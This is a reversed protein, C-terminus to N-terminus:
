GSVSAPVELVYLPLEGTAVQTLRVDGAMAEPRRDVTVEPAMLTTLPLAAGQLAAGEGDIGLPSTALVLLRRGEAAWEQALRAVDDATTASTAGGVPVDCWAQLSQPVTVGLGRDFTVLIASPRQHAVACIADFRQQLPVGVEVDALPRTANTTALGMAVTLVAGALLFVARRPGRHEWLWGLALGAALALGPVSIAVFRRMAWPHDPTISPTILYLVTTTLVVGVFALAPRRARGQLAQWGLAMLVAFGVAVVIPGLYWELWLYSLTRAQPDLSAMTIDPADMADRLADVDPRLFRSWVLLSTLAIGGAAAGWRLLATPADDDGSRTWLWPTAAFLVAGAGIAALVMPGLRPALDGQYYPASFLRTELAGVAAAASLTAVTALVVGRMTSDKARLALRLEVALVAVIPVLSVFGDIRAMCTAGLLLGSLAGLRPSRRDHALTLVWLGGALLVMALLESYTDRSFYVFPFASALLGVGAAAGLPRGVRSALAFWCLLAVGGLLPNVLFMRGDGLWAATAAYVGPDRDVILHEAHHMANWASSAGAVVLVVVTILTTTRRARPLPGLARLEVAAAPVGLLLTIAAAPIPRYGGAMALGLGAVAFIVLATLGVLMARVFWPPLPNASHAPQESTPPSTPTAATAELAM